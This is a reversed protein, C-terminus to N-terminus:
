RRESFFLILVGVILVLLCIVVIRTSILGPILSMVVSVLFTLFGAVAFSAAFDGDGSLRKSSFFSGFLAVLFFSVLLLPTFIPVTNSAYVFMQDLGTKNWEAFTQYPMKVEQKTLGGHSFYLSLWSYPV